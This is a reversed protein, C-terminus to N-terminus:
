PLRPWCFVGLRRQLFSRPGFTACCHGVRSESAVAAVGGVLGLAGPVARALGSPRGPALIRCGCDRPPLARNM